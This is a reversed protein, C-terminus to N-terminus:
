VPDDALGELAIKEEVIFEVDVDSFVDLVFNDKFAM